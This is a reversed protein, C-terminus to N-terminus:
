HPPAGVEDTFSRALKDLQGAARAIEQARQIVDDTNKLPGQGRSTAFAISIPPMCTHVLLLCGQPSHIDSLSFVHVCAFLEAYPNYYNCVHMDKPKTCQMTVCHMVCACVCMVCENCVRVCARVCVCVCTHLRVRECVGVECVCRTFDSMDLLMGCMQKALMVCDNDPTGSQGAWHHAETEFQAHQEQLGQSAEALRRQDEEPLGALAHQLLSSGIAFVAAILAVTVISYSGHTGSQTALYVCSCAYVPVQPSGSMCTM